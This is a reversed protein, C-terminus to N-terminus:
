FLGGLAEGEEKRKVEQLLLLHKVARLGSRFGTERSRVNTRVLGGDAKFCVSKAPQTCSFYM